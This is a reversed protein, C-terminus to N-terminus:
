KPAIIEFRVKTKKQLSYNKHLERNKM